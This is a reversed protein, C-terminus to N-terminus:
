KWQVFDCAFLPTIVEMESGTYHM